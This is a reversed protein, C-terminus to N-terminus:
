MTYTPADNSIGALILDIRDRIQINEPVDQFCVGVGAPKSASGSANIWVVTVVAPSKGAQDPLTIMLFIQDGMSFTRNTPVYLGAGKLFPMYSKYLTSKDTASFSLPASQQMKEKEDSM